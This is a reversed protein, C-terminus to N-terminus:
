LINEIQTILEQARNTASKEDDGFGFVYFKIKPETGSPRLAMWSNDDFEIKLMNTPIIDLNYDILKAHHSLKRFDSQLKELDYKETSINLVKSKMYGYEQYIQDLVEILNLGKEKYYSSIEVLIALSQIADKDFALEENILSGYSEEFSFFHELNSRDEAIKKILSGIWKFGTPVEFVQMDNKLAIIRPLNSSVYSYIMYKNSMDQQQTKARNILYNFIITATENGNLITFKNGDNVAIGVRDSDPDTTIVVDCNNEKGIKFLEEYAEINEPNPSKTFTFNPDNVMQKEVFFTHKTLLPLIQRAYKAGTGHQPSYAIRLNHCDKRHVLDNVKVFYEEFYEDKPKIVLKNNAKFLIINKKYNEYDKFHSLLVDIEDPLSQCGFENYVKLGNYEKPNHSATINIGAGAQYKKILFSIVPTPCIDDIFVVNIGRSTLMDRASKAFELSMNRNDRGIVVLQKEIPQTAKLYSALGDAIRLVHNTNLQHDQDGVIGRIGATGFELKQKNM